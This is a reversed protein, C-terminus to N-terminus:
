DLKTVSPIEISQKILAVVEEVALSGDVEYDALAYLSERETFLSTIKDKREEASLGELLPRHSDNKALRKELVALSVNLYVSVCRDKMWIQNNVDLLFGGGTAIVGKDVTDSKQVFASEQARFYEWGFRKVMEEISIQHTLELQADIDVFNLNLEKALLNGVTSKGCGMFGVLCIPKSHM